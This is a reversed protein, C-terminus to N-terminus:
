PLVRVTMPQVAVGVAILRDVEEVDVREDLCEARDARLGALQWPGQRTRARSELLPNGTRVRRENALGTSEIDCFHVCTATRCCRQISASKEPTAARRSLTRKDPGGERGHFSDSSSCAANRRLMRPTKAAEFPFRGQEVRSRVCLSPPGNWECSPVARIKKEDGPLAAAKPRPFRCGGIGSAGAPADCRCM